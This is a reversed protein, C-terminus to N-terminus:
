RRPPGPRGPREAHRLLTRAQDLEEATDLDFTESGRATVLHVREAYRRLLGRAGRDGCQELLQPLLSRHVILPPVPGDEGALAVAAAHPHAARAEVLREATGPTVFPQDGLFVAVDRAYGLGEVGLRLSSAMGEEPQPNLVPLWEGRPAEDALAARQAWVEKGCVLIV